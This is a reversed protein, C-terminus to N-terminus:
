RNIVLEVAAWFLMALIVAVFACGVLQIRDVVWRRGRLRPLREGRSCIVGEIIATVNSHGSETAWELSNGLSKPADINAEHDLVLAVLKSTKAHLEDSIASAPDWKAALISREADTLPTRAREAEKALLDLIHEVPDEESRFPNKRLWSVNWRLEGLGAGQVLRWRVAPVM